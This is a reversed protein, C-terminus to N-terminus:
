PQAGTGLIQLIVVVAILVSYVYHTASDKYDDDAAICICHEIVFVAWAIRYLEM